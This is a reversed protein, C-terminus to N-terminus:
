AVVNDEDGVVEKNITEKDKEGEVETSAVQTDLKSSVDCPAEETEAVEKAESLDAEKGNEVEMSESATADVSDGSVSTEKPSSAEDSTVKEVTKVSVDVEESGTDAKFETSLGKLDDVVPSNTSEKSEGSAGDDAQDADKDKCSEVEDGSKANVVHTKYFNDFYENIKKKGEEAQVILVKDLDQNKAAPDEMQDEKLYSVLNDSEDIQRRNKLKKGVAQFINEAEDTIQLPSLHLSTNAQTVLKKIDQFDPFEKTRNVFKQIKKNIEPYRSETCIFKKESKRDLSSSLEKHEAIKRFLEMYRRKFKACMLYNSDGDDDWDVEAEELRKIEKGCKKLAAELKLLHKASVKKKAKNKDKEHVLNENFCHKSSSPTEETMEVDKAEAKNTDAKKESDPKSKEVDPANNPRLGLSQFINPPASQEESQVPSTDMPVADAVSSLSKSDEQAARTAAPDKGDESASVEVPKSKTPEKTIPKPSEKVPVKTSITTLCIKKRPPPKTTGEDPDLSRKSGKQYQLIETIVADIRDITDMGEMIPQSHQHVFVKLPLSNLHAPDLNNMYKLIQRFYPQFAKGTLNKKCMELFTTMVEKLKLNKTAEESSQQSITTKNSSEVPKDDVIPPATSEIPPVDGNTVVKISESPNVDVQKEPINEKDHVSNSTSEMVSSNVNEKSSESTESTTGSSRFKKMEDFVEKMYVYKNKSDSKIVSCKSNIFKALEVSGTHEEALNNLYKTVKRSFMTYEKKPLVKICVQILKGLSESVLNKKKADAVKKQPTSKAVKSEVKVEKEVKTEKSNGHETVSSVVDKSSVDESLKEAKTSEAKTSEAKTSEAKTSEAKPSEAKPSEATTNVKIVSITSKSPSKKVEIQNKEKCLLNTTDQKKGDSDGEVIEIDEENNKAAAEEKGWMSKLEERSKKRESSTEKENEGWMMSKLEERSKLKVPGDDSEISTNVSIVSTNVSIASTDLSDDDTIDVVEAQVGWLDKRLQLTPKAKSQDVEEAKTGATSTLGSASSKTFVGQGTSSTTDKPKSPENIVDEDLDIFDIVPKPEVPKKISIELEPKQKSPETEPKKKSPTLIEIETVEDLSNADHSQTISLRRVASNQHKSPSQTGNTKKPTETGNTKKPTLIEIEELAQVIDSAISVMPPRKDPTTRNKNPPSTKAQSSTTSAKPTLIEIDEESDKTKDPTKPHPKSPTLVDAGGEKVKEDKAATEVEAIAAEPSKVHTEPDLNYLQFALHILLAVFRIRTGNIKDDTSPSKLWDVFTPFYVLDCCSLLDGPPLLSPDMFKEVDVRPIKTLYLKPCFYTRTMVGHIHNWLDILNEKIETPMALLKSLPHSLHPLVKPNLWTSPPTVRITQREWDEPIDYVFFDSMAYVPGKKPKNVSSFKTVSVVFSFKRANCLKEFNLFEESEFIENM